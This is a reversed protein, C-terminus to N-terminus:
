ASRRPVTEWGSRVLPRRPQLHAIPPSIPMLWEDDKRSARVHALAGNLAEIVDFPVPSAEDHELGESEAWAAVDSWSWLSSAAVATYPAPFGSRRQGNAWLRVTERSVDFREAIESISVLGPDIRVVVVNISKLDAILQQVADVASQAPIEADIYTVGSTRSATAEYSLCDLGMNHFESDLDFGDVVVTVAYTGMGRM